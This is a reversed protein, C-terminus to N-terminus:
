GPVSCDSPETETPSRSACAQGSSNKSPTPHVRKSGVGVRPLVGGYVWCSTGAPSVSAGAWGSFPEEAAGEIAGDTGSLQGACIRLCPSHPLEAAGATVGGVSEPVGVLM